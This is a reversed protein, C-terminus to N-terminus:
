TNALLRSGYSGVLQVTDIATARLNSGFARTFRTQASFGLVYFSVVFAVFVAMSRLQSSSVCTCDLAEMPFGLVAMHEEACVMRDAAFSFFESSQTMSKFGPGDTRWPKRSGEIQQSVDLYVDAAKTDDSDAAIQFCLDISELVRQQDRGVGRCEHRDIWSGRCSMKSRMRAHKAQWKEGPARSSQKKSSRQAAEPRRKSVLVGCLSDIQSITNSLCANFSSLTNSMCILVEM